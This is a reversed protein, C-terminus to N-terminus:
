KETPMDAICALTRDGLAQLMAKSDAALQEAKKSADAVIVPLLAEALKKGVGHEVEITMTQKNSYQSPRDALSASISWHGPYKDYKNTKNNYTQGAEHWDFSVNTVFMKGVQAADLEQEEIKM